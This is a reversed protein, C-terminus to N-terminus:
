QTDVIYDILRDGDDLFIWIQYDITSTHGYAAAKPLKQALIMNPGTRFWAVNNTTGIWEANGPRYVPINGVAAVVAALPTNTASLANLSADYRRMEKVGSLDCGAALLLMALWLAGTEYM